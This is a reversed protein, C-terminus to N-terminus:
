EKTISDTRTLMGGGKKTAAAATAPNAAVDSAASAAASAATGPNTAMQQGGDVGNSPKGPLTEELVEQFREFFAPGPVFSARHSQGGGSVGGGVGGRSSIGGGGVPSSAAVATNAAAAALAEVHEILAMDTMTAAGAGDARGPAPRRPPSANAAADAAAAAAAAATAARMGLARGVMVEFASPRRIDTRMILDAVEALSMGPGSPDAICWQLLLTTSRLTACASPSLGCQRALLTDAEADLGAVYAIIEPDLPGAKAHTWYRWTFEAERFYGFAPLCYAHDIPVLDYGGGGGGGGGSGGGDKKTSSSDDDDNDDAGSGNEAGQTVVDAGDEDDDNGIDITLGMSGGGGRGAKKGGHCRSAADGGDGEGEGEAAKKTTMTTMPLAKKKKMAKAKRRVLINGEHRDCNFLRLDQIALRHAAGRDFESGDFRFDGAEGDSEVFQQISGSQRRLNKGSPTRLLLHEVATPPINAFGRDLKYAVM